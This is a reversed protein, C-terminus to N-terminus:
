IRSGNKEKERIIKEKIDTTKWLPHNQGGHVDPVTPSM